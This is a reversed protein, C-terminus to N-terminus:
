ERISRSPLSVEGEKGECEWRLRHRVLIYEEENLLVSRASLPPLIHQFMKNDTHTTVARTTLNHIKLLHGKKGQKHGRHLGRITVNLCPQITLPVALSCKRSYVELGTEKEGRRVRKAGSSVSSIHRRVEDHNSNLLNQQCLSLLAWPGAQGNREGVEMAGVIEFEVEVAVVGEQGSWLVELKVEGVDSGADDRGNIACLWASLSAYCTPSDTDSEADKSEHSFHCKGLQVCCGGVDSNGEGM